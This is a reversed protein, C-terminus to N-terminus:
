IVPYNHMQTTLLQALSIYCVSILLRDYTCVIVQVLEQCSRCPRGKTSQYNRIFVSGSLRVRLTTTKGELYKELSGVDEQVNEKFEDDLQTTPCGQM